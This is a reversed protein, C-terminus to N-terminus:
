ILLNPNKLSIANNLNISKLIDIHYIRVDDQIPDIISNLKAVLTKVDYNTAQPYFFISKQIRISAKELTKAIKQLRKKSSIDYCIIFDFRQM